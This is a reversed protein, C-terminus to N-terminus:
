QSENKQLLTEIAQEIVQAPTTRSLRVDQLLGQQDLLYITPAGSINWSKRIPGDMGDWWCRWTIEGSAISSKLTELKEDMSVSLLAFRENRFKEILTRQLPYLEICAGCWNASFTLLVVKGRYDSLRFRSGAADTGVIDPAQKGPALQSREVLLSKALDGYTKPPKFAESLLFEKNPGSWKWDMAQVDSFEDNARTLIREIEASAVAEDYPFQEDLYPAVVLKWFRENNAIRSQSRIQRSRAHAKGLNHFYQALGYGAAARTTPNPGSEFAQRLFVGSKKSPLSGSVLTLVHVVRPDAMHHAAVVDLAQEKLRWPEGHVDGTHYGGRMIVFALADLSYPSQSHAKALALYRPL